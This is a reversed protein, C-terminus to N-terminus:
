KVAVQGNMLMPLLWDRLEALTQNEIINHAIIDRFQIFENFTKIIDENHAVKYTLLDDAGIVPMKTGKSNAVAFNFMSKHTMTLIAFNYEDDNKVRFSHVTGTVLGDFPSFGAKLLYPRIGGFLIDFKSLKFLNTGFASSSNKENLCMTASPLVSLDLTDIDHKDDIFDFKTTNKTLLKNMEKVEWGAPINRKLEECWVMKGGSTKYPKGNEDPFDFQVFWYDYLTKAMQELGANIRNNLEIKSDLASLVTSIKQQAPISLEPVQIFNFIWIPLQSQVSGSMINEVQKYFLNSRFFGYLFGNDYDSGGRIILMGSNIRINEYPVNEKYVGMNGITGRTNMVLDGRKLKGNGMAEDKNKSIFVKSSFDFGNKTLNSSDLFVCFGNDSFDKKNPYNVGRDGDVLQITSGSLPRLKTKIM